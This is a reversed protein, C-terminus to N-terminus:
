ILNLQAMVAMYKNEEEGENTLPNVIVVNCNFPRKEAAYRRSVEQCAALTYTQKKTTEILSYKCRAMDREWCRVVLPIVNGGMEQIADALQNIIAIAEDDMEIPMPNSISNPSVTCTVPSQFKTAYLM